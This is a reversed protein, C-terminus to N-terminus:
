TKTTDLAGRSAIWKLPKTPLNENHWDNHININIDLSCVISITDTTIMSVNLEVSISQCIHVSSVNCWMYVYCYVHDWKSYM